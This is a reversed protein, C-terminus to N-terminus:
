NISRILILNCIVLLISLILLLIDVPLGIFLETKIKKPKIINDFCIFLSFILIM